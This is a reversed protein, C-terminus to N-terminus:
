VLDYVVLNFFLLLDHLLESAVILVPHPGEIADFDICIILRRKLLRRATCWSTM